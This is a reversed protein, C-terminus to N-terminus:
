FKLRRRPIKKKREKKVKNVLEDTMNFDVVPLKLRVYSLFQMNESFIHKSSSMNYLTGKILFFFACSSPCKVRRVSVSYRLKTKVFSM